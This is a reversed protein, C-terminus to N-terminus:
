ELVDSLLPEGFDMVMARANRAEDNARLGIEAIVRLYPFLECLLAHARHTFLISLLHCLLQPSDLIHLAGGQGLIFKFIHKILYSIKVKGGWGLLVQM